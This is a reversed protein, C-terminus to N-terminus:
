CEEYPQGEQAHHNRPAPWIDLGKSYTASVEEGSAQDPNTYRQVEDSISTIIRIPIANSPGVQKMASRLSTLDSRSSVLIMDLKHKILLDSIDGAGGLVRLGAIYRGRSVPLDGLFGIAQFEPCHRRLESLVGVGQRDAGYILVRTRRRKGVKGQLRAALASSLFRVASISLLSYLASILYVSRPLPESVVGFLFASSIASAIISLWGLRVLEEPSTFSWVSAHVGFMMLVFCQTAAWILAVVPVLRLWGEPIGEDYRTMFAGIVCIYFVIGLASLRLYVAFNGLTGLSLIKKNM